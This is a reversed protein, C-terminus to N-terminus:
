IADSGKGGDWVATFGAANLIEWGHTNAITLPLCRYAYRSPTADMWERAVPAPRIATPESGIRYCTLKM